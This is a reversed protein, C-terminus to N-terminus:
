ETRLPQVLCGFRSGDAVFAETNMRKTIGFTLFINLLLLAVIASILMAKVVNLREIAQMMGFPGVVPPRFDDGWPEIKLKKTGSQFLGLAM